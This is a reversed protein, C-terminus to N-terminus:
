AIEMSVVSGMLGEAAEGVKERLYIANGNVDTLYDNPVEIVATVKIRIDPKRSEVEVVSTTDDKVVKKVM